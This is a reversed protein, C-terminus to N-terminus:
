LEICIDERAEPFSDQRVVILLVAIAVALAQRAPITPARQWRDM